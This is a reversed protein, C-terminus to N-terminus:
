GPRVQSVLNSKLESPFSNENFQKLSSDQPHFLFVGQTYYWLWIDGDRDIFLNYSINGTNLKQLATAAFIIKDSKIDYEQLFGNQYVLWLKGDARKKLPHLKQM